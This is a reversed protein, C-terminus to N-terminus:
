IFSSIISKRKGDKILKLILENFNEKTSLARYDSPDKATGTPLEIQILNFKKAVREGFIRGHNEKKDFDNDFLVFINNFRSKLQDVVQKKPMTSESQLSCAPIGTNAWITLADKLSSTIILDNGEKPLQTWLSWVSGNASSIWKFGNKNFPQYVKQTEIGDKHEIYTYAYKDTRYPKGNIFMFNVPHVNAFELWKRTIGYKGWFDKDIALWIRERTQIQVNKTKSSHVVSHTCVKEFSANNSISNCLDVISCSFLTCLFTPLDWFDGTSFDKCYVKQDKEYISFSPKKDERLPSNILCPIKPLDLCKIAIQVESFDRTLSDWDELYCQM